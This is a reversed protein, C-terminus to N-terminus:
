KVAGAMLAGVGMKAAIGALVLITLIHLIGWISKKAIEVKLGQWFEREAKSADIMAQHAAKHAQTGDPFADSELAAILDKIREQERVEHDRLKRDFADEVEALTKGYIRREQGTYNARADATMTITERYNLVDLLHQSEADPQKDSM